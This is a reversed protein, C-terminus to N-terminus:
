LNSWLLMVGSLALLSLVVADFRRQDLREYVWQGLRAGIITGPLAILFARFFATTMLGNIASAILMAVLISLNFSQFLARKDAKDLGRLGAWVTPLPGSMGALGGLFGGGFGVLADIGRNAYRVRLRGRDILVYSCYTVLLVGVALKFARPSVHPLLWVGLPVGALGAIIYHGVDRWRIAHWIAPLTQLQGVVGGAAALQAAIAPTVANLWFPMATLATGFGTLGNVFGGALAGALIIVIESTIM